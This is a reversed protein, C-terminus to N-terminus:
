PHDGVAEALASREEDGVKSDGTLLDVVGDEHARVLDDTAAGPLRFLARVADTGVAAISVGEGAETVVFRGGGVLVYEGVAGAVTAPEPATLGAGAPEPIPEGTLLAPGIAQLLQEATLEPTSSAIALATHIDPIWAVVVNHGTDGGGGASAYVTKGLVSSALRVWGYTESTGDGHDWRPKRSADVADRPVLDHSFLDATWAALTPMSMALDGNGSM